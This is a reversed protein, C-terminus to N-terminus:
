YSAPIFRFGDVDPLIYGIGPFPFHYGMVPIGESVAMNMLMQRSEVAMGPDADFAAFWTPNAVNAFANIAADVMHILSNGDSEIMYAMHGPSHGPSAIATVGPILEDGGNYFSVAEADLAPQLKVMAEGIVDEPANSLFGFDPQPFFVEANPFVLEGAHSLGNIHDPHWHSMVVTNVAEASNGLANLTSVLRGGSNAGNGTDFVVTQDEYQLVLILFSHIVTGTEPELLNLSEFFTGITEESQNAGLISAALPASFDSIVTMNFDGLKFRFYAAVESETSTLQANSPFIGVNLLGLSLTSVGLGKLLDRRSIKTSSM